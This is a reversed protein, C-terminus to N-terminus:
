VDEEWDYSDYSDDWEEEYYPETISLSLRPQGGATVDLELSSDPCSFCIEYSIGAELVCNELYVLNMVDEKAYKTTFTCSDVTEGTDQRIVSVQLDHAPDLHHPWFEILELQTEEDFALSARLDHAPATGSVAEESLPVPDEFILYEEIGAEQMRRITEPLYSRRIWITYGFQYYHDHLYQFIEPAYDQRRYGWIEATEDFFIIKTQNEELHRLEEKGFAEWTWPTYCAAGYDMGRSIDISSVDDTAFHLRDGPDTIVNTLYAPDYAQRTLGASSVFKPIMPLAPILPYVIPIAIVLAAALAIWSRVKRPERAALAIGAGCMLCTCCVAACIYHMAHFNDFGRTPIMIISFFFTLATLPHAPILLCSALIPSVANLLRCLSLLTIDGSFVARFSDTLYTWFAPLFSFLTNMGDTSLGPNYKPYVDVNLTYVSYIFNSLNGTILYWLCLVAWPALIILILNRDERIISKRVAKRDQVPTEREILFIQRVLVGFALVAISFASPFVCGFTLLISFSIWLCSSISLHKTREFRILELLLIVHGIGAWHESVLNTGLHILSLQGIFLVPMLLFVPWPIDRRLHLYMGTWLLSLAIYFCFRYMNDNLPHFLGFLAAFYYSFPMHQSLGVKYVDLGRAVNDGLYFVNNEDMFYEAPLMTLYFAGACLFILLACLCIQWIPTKRCANTM